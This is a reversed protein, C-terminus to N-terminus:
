NKKAVKKIWEVIRPDALHGRGSASVMVVVPGEGMFAPAKRADVGPIDGTLTVDTAIAIDPDVTFASTKAGKLGVEEQVTFVAYITHSTKMEKLASVLMACGARNDLAKGTIVTGNLKKYDRDITIYTGVDIGLALVEDKNKAGVDIFLNAMEIPKKRDEETMIHPPKTGLVGYIDGKDGHLIVRQSVLVPNYWGGIG